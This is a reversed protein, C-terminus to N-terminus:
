KAVKGLLFKNENMSKKNPKFAVKQGRRSLIEELNENKKLQPEAPITKLIKTLEEDVLTM